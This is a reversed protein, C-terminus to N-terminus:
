LPKRSDIYFRRIRYHCETNVEVEGSPLNTHADSRALAEDSVGYYRMM